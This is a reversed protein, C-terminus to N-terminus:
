PNGVSRSLRMRFGLALVALMLSGAVSSPEPVVEFNLTGTGFTNGTFYGYRAGTDFGIVLSTSGISEINSAFGFGGPASAATVLFNLGVPAGNLFSAVAVDFDDDAQTFTGSLGPVLSTFSLLLGQSANLTQSGSAAVTAVGTDVTGSGLLSNNADSRVEFSFQAAQVTGNLCVGLILLAMASARTIFKLM